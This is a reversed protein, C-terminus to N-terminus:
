FLSFIGHYCYLTEVISRFDLEECTSCPTSEMGLFDSLFTLFKLLILQGFNKKIHALKMLGNSGRCSGYSKSKM